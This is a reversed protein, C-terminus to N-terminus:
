DIVIQESISPLNILLRESIVKSFTRGLDLQLADGVRFELKGVEILSQHLHNAAEIFGRMYDVGLVYQTVRAYEATAFGNGCGIDLVVDEPSLYERVVETNFDRFVLDRITAEKLNARESSEQEWKGKIIQRRQENGDSDNAM